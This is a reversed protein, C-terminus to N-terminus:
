TEKLVTIVILVLVIFACILVAGVIGAGTDNAQVAHIIEFIGGVLLLVLLAAGLITQLVALSNTVFECAAELYFGLIILAFVAFVAIIAIVANM